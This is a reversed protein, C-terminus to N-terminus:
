KKEWKRTAPNLLYKGDPSVKWDARDPAAAAPAPAPTAAPADITPSAPTWAHKTIFGPTKARPSKEKLTTKLLLERGNFAGDKAIKALVNANPYKAKFAARGEETDPNFGAAAAFFTLLEAEQKELANHYETGQLSFYASHFAGVEVRDTSTELVSFEAIVAKKRSGGTGDLHRISEIMVRYSAAMEPFFPTRSDNGIQINETQSFLDSM